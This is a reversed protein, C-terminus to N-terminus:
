KKIGLQANLRQEAAFMRELAKQERGEFVTDFNRNRFRKQRLNHSKPLRGNKKSNEAEEDSEKEDGDDNGTEINKNDEELVQNKNTNDNNQNTNEGNQSGVITKEANQGNNSSESNTQVQPNSSTATNDPFFGKSDKRRMSGKATKISRGSKNPSHINKKMGFQVKSNKPMKYEVDDTLGSNILESTNTYLVGVTKYPQGVESFHGKVLNKNRRELADSRKSEKLVEALDLSDLKGVDFNLCNLETQSPQTVFKESGRSIAPSNLLLSPKTKLRKEEERIADKKLNESLQNPEFESYIKHFYPKGFISAAELESKQEKTVIGNPTSPPTNQFKSDTLLKSNLDPKNNEPKNENKLFDPQNAEISKDLAKELDKNNNNETNCEPM